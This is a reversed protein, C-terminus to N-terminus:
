DARHSKSVNELTQLTCSDGLHNESDLFLYLTDITFLVFCSLLILFDSLPLLLSLPSSLLSVVRSSLVHSLRVDRSDHQTDQTRRATECAGNRTETDRTNATGHQSGRGLACSSPSWVEMIFGRRLDAPACRSGTGPSRFRVFCHHIRHPSWIQVNSHMSRTGHTHRWSSNDCARFIWFSM